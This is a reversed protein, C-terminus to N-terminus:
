RQKNQNVIRGTSDHSRRPTMAEGCYSTSDRATLSGRDLLSAADVLAEEANHLRLGIVINREEQTMSM